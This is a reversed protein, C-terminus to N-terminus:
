LSWFQLILATGLMAVICSLPLGLRWYDGFHYGGPGMVLANNQHGIPTLFDCSAGLAVAMLFPDPQYGLSAAIAAAVPGMVLVAAAHHLFPAALMSTVLVLGVALFGPLHAAVLTLGGAILADAGTDKLAGGVPILCGLMVLIPWDIADYAEKLTLRRLLIVVVAAVFFAVEVPLVQFAVLVMAVLLVVIALPQPRKLGLALNRGALPLCGLRTLTESLADSYGQLVIVDGVRLATRHLRTRIKQGSRSIALLNVEFRQRLDLSAPTRGILQSEATVVAEVAEVEEKKPEASAIEEAGALTLGGKAIVEHLIVPDAQLVVLDGEFLVWNARPISRRDRERIIATVSIEGDSLRELDGVTKGILPSGAPVHAESVYSDVEFRQEPAPTGRRDRPLLRWGFTLFAVAIVALPFGVPAFDFMNFPRGEVDQRVTSILLNPSTGILTMTGGVLSGFALPMLYCSPSRENRRATQIAIPMFIGLTGVNKMFASLFTVCATLMAVQSSTTRTAHLLPRMVAEVLGSITIARGIVLVSAIIIIVPSAFGQFVKETPIIGTLAAVSLAIASVVDYRLRDWAFLGLMGLVIAFAEAQNLTL